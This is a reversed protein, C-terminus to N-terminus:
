DTTSIYSVTRLLKDEKSDTFGRAQPHLLFIVHSTSGSDLSIPSFCAHLKSIKDRTPNGVYDNPRSDDLTQTNTKLDNTFRSQFWQMPVWGLSVIVKPNMLELYKALYEEACVYNQLGYKQYLNDVKYFINADKSGCMFVETVASNRGLRWSPQIKCAHM